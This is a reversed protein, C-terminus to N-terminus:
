LGCAGSYSNVSSTSTRAYLCFDTVSCEVSLGASGYNLHTCLCFCSTQTELLRQKVMGLFASGCIITGILEERIKFADDIKSLTLALLFGPPALLLALSVTVVIDDM